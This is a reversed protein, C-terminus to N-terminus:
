AEMALGQGDLFLERGQKLLTGRRFVTLAEDFRKDKLHAQGLAYLAQSDKPGYKVADQLKATGEELKGQKRLLSGLGTLAEVYKPNTALATEYEVRASDAEGLRELARAIYYHPKASNPDLKEAKTFLELAEKAKGEVMAQVGQKILDGSSLAHAASAAFLIGAAVVAPLMRRLVVKM